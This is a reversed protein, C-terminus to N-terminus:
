GICLLTAAVVGATETRLRNEGLTVPVFGEKLASAIEAPTFDGEPGILILTSMAPSVARSLEAPSPDPAAAASTQRRRWAALDETPRPEELCHAILRHTYDASSLWQSFPTPAWLVPLWTQQSQLLASVLIHQLRDQRTHQRETRECILPIIGVVGIETAKELFWEFRSANKLPSIAISIKQSKQPRTHASLVKVVCKKKHSELVSATLLTGKGDTLQLPDGTKMRLVQIAHRSNDEDLVVEQQEASYATIYFFPLAMLTQLSRDSRRKM